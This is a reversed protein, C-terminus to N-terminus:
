ASGCRGTGTGAAPVAVRCAESCVPTEGARRPLGREAEFYTGCVPCPALQKVPRGPASATAASRQRTGTSRLALRVLLRAVMLVLLVLAVVRLIM